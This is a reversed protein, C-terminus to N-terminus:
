LRDDDSPEVDPVQEMVVRFEEVSGQAAKEKLTKWARLHDSAASGLLQEVSVREKEAALEVERYIDEPIDISVKM